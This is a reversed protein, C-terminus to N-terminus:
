QPPIRLWNRTYVNVIISKFRIRRSRVRQRWRTLSTFNVRTSKNTAQKQCPSLLSLPCWLSSSLGILSPSTPCTQVREPDHAILSTNGHDGGHLIIIGLRCMTVTKSWFRTGYAIKFYRIGSTVSSIEETYSIEETSPCRMINTNLWAM